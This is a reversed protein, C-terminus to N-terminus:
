IGRRKEEAVVGPRRRSRSRGLAHHPFIMKKMPNPVAEVRHLVEPMDSPAISDSFAEVDKIRHYSYGEDPSKLIADLTPPLAANASALSSTSAGNLSTSRGGSAAASTPSGSSAAPRNVMPVFYSGLAFGIGLAVVVLLIVLPRMASGAQFRLM